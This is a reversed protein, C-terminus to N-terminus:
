DQIEQIEWMGYLLNNLKLKLISSKVKQINSTSNKSEKLQDKKKM